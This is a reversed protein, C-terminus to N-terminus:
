DIRTGTIRYSPADVDYLRARAMLNKPNYRQIFQDVYKLGTFGSQVLDSVEELTFSLGQRTINTVNDPLQCDDGLVDAIIQCLLQGMAFKGLNPLPEGYIATVSWTGEETIGKNLNNCLPWLEGGLRVLKRYDDLRYDTGDVLVVGDVTVQAIERVPGPLITESVISCSCDTGCMGCAINYWLGNILAPYPGWGGGVDWWGASLRNWGDGYCEKRCPRITVQCTDFRQGSAFYLIESAAAVAYGSVGAAETPIPVCFGVWEYPRCPGPTYFDDPLVVPGGTIASASIALQGLNVTATGVATRKGVATINLGGLGVTATGNVRPTGTAAIGLGGLSVGASGKVITKGVAGITLAGLDVAATGEVVPPALNFDYDPPNDSVTTGSLATQDAGNGTVDVVDDTTAAQNLPWCGLPNLAMLDALAETFGAKIQAVSLQPAFFAQLAIDRNGGVAAQGIWVEDGAGPDGHNAAGTDEGFIIDTDPDVIPYLGYAWTYHASGAVKSQAVWIWQTEPLAPDPPSPFGNGTFENLGYLRNGTVIADRASAGLRRLTGLGGVGSFLDIRYLWVMSYSGSGVPGCSGVSCTINDTGGSFHRSM